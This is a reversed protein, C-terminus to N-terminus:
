VTRTGDLCLRTPDRTVARTLGRGVKCTGLIGEESRGKQGRRATRISSHHYLGSPIMCAERAEGPAKYFRPSRPLSATRILQAQRKMCKSIEPTIRVKWKWEVGAM